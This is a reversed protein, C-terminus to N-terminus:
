APVPEAATREGAEQGAEKWREEKGYFQQKKFEKQLSLLFDSLQQLKAGLNLL